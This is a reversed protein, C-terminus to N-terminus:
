KWGAEFIIDMVDAVPTYGIKMYISNSTPNALDTYLCCFERGQDLLLQSLGATVSTAYGRGRFDPPTYVFSISEGRKTPRTRAAMSVPKPDCWLFISGKEIMKLAMNLERHYGGEGFCDRYFGLAWNRVLDTDEPIAQRLSGSSFDVPNVKELKHIRQKMGTSFPENWQEAFATVLEKEGIVGPITWGENRLEEALLKVAKIDSGCPAALQLKHPPTMVAALHVGGNEVAALLPEEGWASPDEKLRLCIGYMLGYLAEDQEFVPGLRELFPIAASYRIYRM